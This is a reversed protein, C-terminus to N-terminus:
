SADKVRILGFIPEGREVPLDLGGVEPAVAAARL